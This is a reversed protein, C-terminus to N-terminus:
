GQNTVQQSEDSNGKEDHLIALYADAPISIVNGSPKATQTPQSLEVIETEEERDSSDDLSIQDFLDLPVEEVSNVDNTINDNM